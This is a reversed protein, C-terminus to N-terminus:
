PIAAVILRYLSGRSRKRQVSTQGCPTNTMSLPLASITSLSEQMSHPAQAIFQGAFAIFTLAPTPQAAAIM